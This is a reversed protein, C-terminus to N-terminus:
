PGSGAGAAIGELKQNDGGRGAAMKDTEEPGPSTVDEEHYSYEEVEVEKYLVGNIKRLKSKDHVPPTLKKNSSALPPTQPKSTQATKRPPAGETTSSDPSHSDRVPRRNGRLAAVEENLKNITM